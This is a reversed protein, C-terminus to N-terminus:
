CHFECLGVLYKGELLVGFYLMKLHLLGKPLFSRHAEAAGLAPSLLPSPLFEM